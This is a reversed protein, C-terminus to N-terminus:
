SHPRPCRRSTPPTPRPLRPTSCGTSTSSTTGKTIRDGYAARFTTLAHDTINDIRRYGDIVEADDDYATDLSLM